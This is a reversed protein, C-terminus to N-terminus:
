WCSYCSYRLLLFDSIYFMFFILFIFLSFFFFFIGGFLKTSDLIDRLTIDINELYAKDMMPAEDIIIATAEKMLKALATGRSITFMDDKAM